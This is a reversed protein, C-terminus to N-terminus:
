KSCISTKRTFSSSVSTGAKKSWTLSTEPNCDLQKMTLELLFLLLHSRNTSRQTIPEVRKRQAVRCHCHYSRSGTLPHLCIRMRTDCVTAPPEAVADCRSYLRSLFVCVFAALSDVQVYAVVSLPAPFRALCPNPSNMVSTKVSNETAFIYKYIYERNHLQARQSM